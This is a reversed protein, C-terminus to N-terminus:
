PPGLRLRLQPLPPAGDGAPRHVVRVTPVGATELRAVTTSGNPFRRAVARYADAFADASDADDWVSYWVLARADAHHLLAYRDGDWGHAAEAAAAGLHEELLVATELQGLDNQYAVEWDGPEIDLRLETPPDRAEFFRGDPDRVQETSQPLLSDIPATGPYRRWLAQVFTAGGTYPFLLTERIIRPASGFVPFQENQAELGVAVQETLDPLESPPLERGLTEELSHLMMVLTAHGEMAAQAALQRDNGRDRSVLSDLDTHQDQLAHVIEHALVPRLTEPGVGEVLYLRRDDPDYYGLVQEGYLDLLLARLDITDPILGLLTYVERVARLEEPPLQETIQDEIYRRLEAAPRRAFRISDRAELGSIEEIRPLLETIVAAIEPDSPEQARCALPLWCLLLALLAQHTIRSRVRSVRRM